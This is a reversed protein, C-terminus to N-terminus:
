AIEILQQFIAPKIFGNFVLSCLILKMHKKHEPKYLGPQQFIAPKIFGNFVLSCLRPNM